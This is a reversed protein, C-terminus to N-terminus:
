KQTNRAVNEILDAASAQSNSARIRQGITKMRRELLKDKLTFEIGQLLQAETVHYPHFRLGLGTEFIRQANDLQDCFLPLVLLPKGFYFCETVTNNGGHTIVLDVLPLVKTQPVSDGGLM